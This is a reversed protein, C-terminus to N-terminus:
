RSRLDPRPRVRLGGSGWDRDLDLRRQTQPDTYLCRHSRSM